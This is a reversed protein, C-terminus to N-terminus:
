SLPRRWIGNSFLTGGSFYYGTGLLLNQENSSLSIAYNVSLSDNIPEWSFGYDISRYVGAAYCAAFINNNIACLSEILWGVTCVTSWTTGNNTSLYIDWGGAIVYDGFSIISHIETSPLNNNM